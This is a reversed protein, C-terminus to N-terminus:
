KGEGGADIGRIHDEIDTAVLYGEIGDTRDAIIRAVKACRERMADEAQQRHAALFTVFPSGDGNGDLIHQAAQSPHRFQSVLDFLQAGKVRDEERVEIM